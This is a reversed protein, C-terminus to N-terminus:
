YSVDLFGDKYKQKGVGQREQQGEEQLRWKGAQGMGRDPHQGPVATPIRKVERRM